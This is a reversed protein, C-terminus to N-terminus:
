SRRPRGRGRKIPAPAVPAPAPNKRPRGRKRKPAVAEEAVADQHLPDAEDDLMPELEQEVEQAKRASRRPGLTEEQTVPESEEPDEPLPGDLHEDNLIDPYYSEKRLEGEHALLKAVGRIHRRIIKKRVSIDITRVRGQEDPYTEVVMGLPFKGKGFPGKDLVLVVDGAKISEHEKKWRSMGHLMPLYESVFRNWIQTRIDDLMKLKRIHKSNNDEKTPPLETIV